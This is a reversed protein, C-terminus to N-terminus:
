SVTLDHEYRAKRINKNSAPLTRVELAYKGAPLEPLLAMLRQPRNELYRLVTFEHGDESLLYLGCEPNEADVKLRNGKVTIIGSSNITDDSVGTNGNEVTKIRADTSQSETKIMSIKQLVEKVENPPQMRLKLTHREPDFTDDEGEFVGSISYSVNVLPLRVGEGQSILDKVVEHYENLVALIDTRTTTSGRKVMESVVSDLDHSKAIDVQAIQDNPNEATLKNERLYYKLSM